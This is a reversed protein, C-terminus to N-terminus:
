TTGTRRAAAFEGALRADRGLIGLRDAEEGLFHQVSQRNSSKTPPARLGLL